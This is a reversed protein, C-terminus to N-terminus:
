WNPNIVFDYDTEVLHEIFKTADEYTEFDHWGEEVGELVYLSPKDALRLRAQIEEPSMREATSNM